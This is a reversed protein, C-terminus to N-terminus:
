PEQGKIKHEKDLTAGGEGGLYVAVSGTFQLLYRMSIPRAFVPVKKKEFVLQIKLKLEVFCNSLHQHVHKLFCLSISHETVTKTLATRLYKYM